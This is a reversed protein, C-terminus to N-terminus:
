KAETACETLEKDYINGIVEIYKKAISGIPYNLKEEFLSLCKVKFSGNEFIITETLKGDKPESTKVIDGEYIDKGNKDNMGTYQGVTEPIVPINTFYETGYESIPKMIYVTSDNMYYHGHRLDGYVWEGTDIRKGRFRIERM